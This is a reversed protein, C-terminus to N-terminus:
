ALTTVLRDRSGIIEVWVRPDDIDPAAMSLKERGDKGAIGMQAANKEVQGRSHRRRALPGSAVQRAGVEDSAVEEVADGNAVDIYDLLHDVIPVIFARSQDQPTAALGHWRM